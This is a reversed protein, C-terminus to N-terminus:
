SKNAKISDIEGQVRTFKGQVLEQLEDINKMAIIKDVDENFNLIVEAIIDSPSVNMVKCYAKFKEKVEKNIRFNYTSNKEM